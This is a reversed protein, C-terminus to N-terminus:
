VDPAPTYGSPAPPAGTVRAEFEARSEQQFEAHYLRWMHELMAERGQVLAPPTPQQRHAEWFSKLMTEYDVSQSADQKAASAKSKRPM